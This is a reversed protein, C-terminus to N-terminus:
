LRMSAPTPGSRKYRGRRRSPPAPPFPTGNARLADHIPGFPFGGTTFNWAYACVIGGPRVTRVMEQVGKAPDPVFFIVLAMSAADFAADPFPLATADGQQFTAM